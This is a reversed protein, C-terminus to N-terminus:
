PLAPPSTAAPILLRRWHQGPGRPGVPVGSGRDAAHHGAGRVSAHALDDAGAAARGARHDTRGTARARQERHEDAIWDPPNGYRDSQMLVFALSRIGEVPTRDAFANVAHRRAGGAQLEKEFLAFEWALHPEVSEFEGAVTELAREFTLGAERCMVILDLADPLASSMRLSRRNAFWKVGRESAIGGAIFAGFAGLAPILIGGELQEIGQMGMWAAAAALGLIGKVALYRPLADEHGFGADRLLRSLKEREGAGIPAIVSAVAVFSRDVNQLMSRADEQGGEQHHRQTASLVARPVDLRRDFEVARRLSRNALWVLLVLLALGTVIAPLLWLSMEQGATM